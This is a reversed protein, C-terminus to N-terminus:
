SIPPPQADPPPAAPAARYTGSISAVSVLAAAVGIAIEVYGLRRVMDLDAVGVAVVALSALLGFMPLRRTDNLALVLMVASPVFPLIIVVVSRPDSEPGLWWTGLGLQRSVNWVSILAVFVMVWVVGTALRWAPTM